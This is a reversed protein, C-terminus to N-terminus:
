YEFCYLRATTGCGIPVGETWSVASSGPMGSIVQDGSVATWANCSTGLAPTGDSRTGTWVSGAVAQRQEDLAISHELLGSVLENFDKAVVMSDTRIYPKAGHVLRGTAGTAPVSLWAKFKRGRIRDLQSGDAATQCKADAGALGGLNATYFSSTAFVVRECDTAGDCGGSPPGGTETDAERLPPGDVSSGESAKGGDVFGGDTSSPDSEGFSGCAALAVLASAVIGIVLARRM